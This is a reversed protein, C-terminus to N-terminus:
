RHQSFQALAARQTPFILLHFDGFYSVFGKLVHFPWSFFRLYAKSLGYNYFRCNEQLTTLWRVLSLHFASRM